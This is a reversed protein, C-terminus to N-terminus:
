CEIITFRLAKYVGRTRDWLRVERKSCYAQCTGDEYTFDFSDKGQFLSRLYMLEQGTLVAYTFVWTRVGHRLVTRHMFGSEDRGSAESDLDTETIEVQADPVIMPEGDVRYIQDFPRM